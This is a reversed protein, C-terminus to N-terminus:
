ARVLSRVRGDIVLLSIAIIAAGLLHNAVIPEALVLHGMAIGSVPILLTVLMVNNSGSVAMIRFFIIYALSTSLLALGALAAITAASPMALLWPRDVAATVPLLILSSCTLQAAATVLPPTSKFRRGWLGSFGYSLAGGLVCLMGIVSSAKGVLAAPGMLVAVGAIGLLVGAIKNLALKEGALGYAVLLAWLPTTANLVSALGAAIQTQGAVILSMPIVNNLIGMVAFPWWERLTSPLRHGLALAVPVLALAALGLRALVITFVPLDKVAMGVFLFSAGWLVALIVLLLWQSSSM